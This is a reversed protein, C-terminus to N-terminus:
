KWVGLAARLDDRRQKRTGFQSKGKNKQPVYETGRVRRAVFRGGYGAGNQNRRPGYLKEIRKKITEVRM